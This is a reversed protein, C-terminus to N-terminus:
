GKAAMRQLSIRRAVRDAMYPRSENLTSELFKAQGNAHGAELDEHVRVAYPAAPGGVRIKVSVEGNGLLPQSTEHSARLAGTLVPTRAMSEKTEVLAEQYLARGTEQATANAVGKLRACLEKVGFLKWEGGASAARNAAM